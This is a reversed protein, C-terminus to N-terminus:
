ILSPYLDEWKPNMREILKIKWNRNWRKLRKERKIAESVDQHLEFYVLNYVNYKSTFGHGMRNKHQWIRKILDQTVGVYMVGRMKNALIYVYYTEM